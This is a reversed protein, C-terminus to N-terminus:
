EILELDLIYIPIIHFIAFSNLACSKIFRIEKIRKSNLNVNYKYNIKIILSEM